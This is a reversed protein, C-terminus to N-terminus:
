ATRSKFVLKRNKGGKRGNVHFCVLSPVTSTPNGNATIIGDGKHRHGETDQHGAEVETGWTGRGGKREGEGGEEM